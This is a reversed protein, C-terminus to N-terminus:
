NLQLSLDQSPAHAWKQRVAASSGQKRAMFTAIYERHSKTSTEGSGEDPLPTDVSLAFCSSIQSRSFVIFPNATVFSSLSLRTPNQYPYLGLKNSM